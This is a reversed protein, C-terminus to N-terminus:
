KPLAKSIENLAESAENCADKIEAKKGFVFSVFHNFIAVLKFGLNKVKEWVNKIFGDAAAKMAPEKKPDYAKPEVTLTSGRETVVDVMEDYSKKMQQTVSDVALKIKDDAKMLADLIEQANPVFPLKSHKAPLNMKGVQMVVGQTQSMQLELIKNIEQLTKETIAVSRDFHPLMANEDKKAKPDKTSLEGKEWENILRDKVKERFEKEANALTDQAFKLAALRDAVYNALDKIPQTDYEMKEPFFEPSKPKVATKKNGFKEAWINRFDSKEFSDKDNMNSVDVAMRFEFDQTLNASGFNRIWCNPYTHKVVMGVHREFPQYDAVRFQGKDGYARGVIFKDLGVKILGEYAIKVLLHYQDIIDITTYEDVKATKIAADKKIEEKKNASIIRKLRKQEDEPLCELVKTYLKIDNGIQEKVWSINGNIFSEAIEEADNSEDGADKKIEEMAKKFEEQKNAALIELVKGYLEANKKISEKVDAYRGNVFAEAIVEPNTSIVPIMDSQQPVVVMPVDEAGQSARDKKRNMIIKDAIEKDMKQCLCKHLNNLEVSSEVVAMFGDIDEFFKDSNDGIKKAYDVVKEAIMQCLLIQEEGLDDVAIEVTNFNDDLYEPTMQIQTENDIVDSLTIGMDDAQKIIFWDKKGVKITGTDIEFLPHVVDFLSIKKQM